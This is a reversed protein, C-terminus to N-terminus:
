QNSGGLVFVRRQQIITRLAGLANNFTTGEATGLEASFVTVESGSITVFRIPLKLNDVITLRAARRRPFPPTAAVNFFIAFSRLPLLRPPQELEFLFSKTQSQVVV